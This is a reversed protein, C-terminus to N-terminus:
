KARSAQGFEDFSVIQELDKRHRARVVKSVLDLKERAYGMAIIAVVTFNDPIKLLAKVKNEDFSGVWCTGLGESTAALVMTQLAITTDIICWKESRKKDACGVIAVPAEALFKAYRGASLTKRKEADRVVIFHWPQLNMASPASRGAELIRGLIDEPIEKDDYSRVSKRAQIAEFVEMRIEKTQM